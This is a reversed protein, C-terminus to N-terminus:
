SQGAPIERSRKPMKASMHFDQLTEYEFDKRIRMNQEFNSLIELSRKPMKASMHFDQLTEYEFDKRIRM